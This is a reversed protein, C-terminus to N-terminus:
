PKKIGKKENKLKINRKLPQVGRFSFAYSSYRKRFARDSMDVDKYSLSTVIETVDSKKKGENMPCVKQCIDCGWIYDNERILEQEREDLEGRRQTIDSLCKKIEIGKDSIAGSPCKKICLGCQICSQIPIEAMYIPFNTEITGIFVYSGFDKTILLCNKGLVGLGCSVATKVENFPSIDTYPNFTYGKYKERLEECANELCRKVWIHYDNGRAYVSINGDSSKPPLYPFVACIVGNKGAADAAGYKKIINFLEEM